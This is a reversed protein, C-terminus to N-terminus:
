RRISASIPLDARAVGPLFWASPAAPSSGPSAPPMV